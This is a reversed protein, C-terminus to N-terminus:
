GHLVDDESLWPCSTSNIDQDASLGAKSSSYSPIGRGFMGVAALSQWQRKNIETDTELPRRMVLSINISAPKHLINQM